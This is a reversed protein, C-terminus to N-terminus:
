FDDVDAAESEFAGSEDEDEDEDEDSEFAADLTERFVFEQLLPAVKVESLDELCERAEEERTAALLAPKRLAAVAAAALALPVLSDFGIARDWLLLTEEVSLYGAFAGFIWPAALRAAPCGIEALHFCLEPEARFLADEFLALAGCAVDVELYVFLPFRPMSQM